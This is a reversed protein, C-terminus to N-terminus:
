DSLAHPRSLYGLLRSFLSSMSDLITRYRPAVSTRKSTHFRGPQEIKEKNAAVQETLRGTAVLWRVFELRYSDESAQDKPTKVYRSRFNSLRGIELVTWGAKQLMEYAQNHEAPSM